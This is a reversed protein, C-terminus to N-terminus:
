GGSNAFTEVLSYLTYVLFVHSSEMTGDMKHLRRHNPSRKSLISSSTSANCLVCRHIAIMSWRRSCICLAQFMRLTEYRKWGAWAWSGDCRSLHRVLFLLQVFVRQHFQGLRTRLVDFSILHVYDQFLICGVFGVAWVHTLPVSVSIQSM